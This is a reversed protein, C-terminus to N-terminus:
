EIIDEDTDMGSSEEEEEEATLLEPSRRRRVPAEVSRRFRLSGVAPSAPDPKPTGARPGGGASGQPLVPLRAVTGAAAGQALRERLNLNGPQGVVFTGARQATGAPILPFRGVQTGVPQIFFSGGLQVLRVSLAEANPQTGPKPGTGATAGNNNAALKALAEASASFM